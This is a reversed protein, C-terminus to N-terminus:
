CTKQVSSKSLEGIQKACRDYIVKAQECQERIQQEFTRAMELMWLMLLVCKTM